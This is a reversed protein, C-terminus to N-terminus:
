SLSDLIEQAAQGPDDAGTIPRGIVLHTAGIQIAREPTMVRTQDGLDAGAPRIGPVMLVFDPGCLERLMEIELASCVVGDLSSDKTLAALTKVRQEAGDDQYGIETLEEGSLSTLITVGLLKTEPACVAKSAEMMARGGSAHINLYMPALNESLSRVTAAVTNPIDHSKLDIFIAAEPCAERIQEVGQPGYSNFFEMGLKLGGAVPGIAKAWEIAQNLDSTDLACFIKPHTM